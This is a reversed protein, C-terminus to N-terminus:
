GRKAPKVFGGSFNDKITLWSTMCGAIVVRFGKDWKPDKLDVTKELKNEVIIDLKRQSTRSVIEVDTGHMDIRSPAQQGRSSFHPTAVAASSEKELSIHEGGQVWKGVHEELDLPVAGCIWHENGTMCFKWNVDRGGEFMVSPAFCLPVPGYGFTAKLYEEGGPAVEERLSISEATLELNVLHGTNSLKDWGDMRNEQNALVVLLILFHFFCFVSAWVDL